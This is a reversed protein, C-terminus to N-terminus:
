KNILASSNVTVWSAATLLSGFAVSGTSWAAGWVRQAVTWPLTVWLWWLLGALPHLTSEYTSSIAQPPARLAVLTNRSYQAHECPL